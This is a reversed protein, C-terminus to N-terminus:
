QKRKRMIIKAAYKIGAIYARDIVALEQRKSVLQHAASRKLMDRLRCREAWEIREITGESMTM